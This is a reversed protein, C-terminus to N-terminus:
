LNLEEIAESITDESIKDQKNIETITVVQKFLRLAFRIDGSVESSFRAMKLLLPYDYSDKKLGLESRQQLIQAIEGGSYVDLFLKECQLRSFIKRDLKGLIFGDNSIFIFNAKGHNLLPFLVNWHEDKKKVLKDIEDFIFVLKKTRKTLMLKRLEDALEYRTKGREKFPRNKAETLIKKAVAGYSDNESCDIYVATIEKKMQEIVKKITITKGNGTLGTLLLNYQNLMRLKSCIDNVLYQRVPIKEPIFTSDFVRNNTIISM